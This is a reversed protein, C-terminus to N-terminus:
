KKKRSCASRLSDYCDHWEIWGMYANNELLFYYMIITLYVLICILYCQVLLTSNKIFCNRKEWLSFLSCLSFLSLFCSSRIYLSCFLAPEESCVTCYHQAGIIYLYLASLILLLNTPLVLCEYHLLICTAPVHRYQLCMFNFDLLNGWLKHWWDTEISPMLGLKRLIHWAM